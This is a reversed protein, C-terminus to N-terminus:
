MCTTLKPAHLMLKILICAGCAVTNWAKDKRSNNSVPLQYM